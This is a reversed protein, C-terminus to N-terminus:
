GYSIQIKVEEVAKSFDPIDAGSDQCTERVFAWVDSVLDEASLGKLNKRHALANEIATKAAWEVERGTFASTM